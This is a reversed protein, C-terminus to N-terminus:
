IRNSIGALYDSGTVEYLYPITYSPHDVIMDGRSGGMVIVSHGAARLTNAMLSTRIHFRLDKRSVILITSKEPLTSFCENAAKEWSIKTSLKEINMKFDAIYNFFDKLITTMDDHADLTPIGVGIGEEEVLKAVEPYGATIIPTGAAISDYLRNPMADRINLSHESTSIVSAKAFSLAALYENYSSWGLEVFHNLYKRPIQSIIAESVPEGAHVVAFKLNLEEIARFVHLLENSNRISNPVMIFPRNKLGANNLSDKVMQTDIKQPNLADRYNPLLVGSFGFREEFSKAQSNGIHILKDSEIIYSNIYSQLFEQDAVSLKERYYNGTRQIIDHDEVLDIWFEAGHKEAITAASGVATIDHCIVHSFNMIPMLITANSYFQLDYHIWSAAERIEISSPLSREVQMPKSLSLGSPHFSKEKIFSILENNEFKLRNVEREHTDIKDALSRAYASSLSAYLARWGLRLKRLIM